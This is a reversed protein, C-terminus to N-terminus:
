RERRESCSVVETRLDDEVIGAWRACWRYGNIHLYAKASYICNVCKSTDHIETDM